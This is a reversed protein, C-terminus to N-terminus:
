ENDISDKQQSLKRSEEQVLKLLDNTSGVFIAQPQQQSNNSNQSPPNLLNRSDADYDAQIAKRNREAKSKEVSNKMVDSAVKTVTKLLSNYAEIARPELTELAVDRASELVEQSNELYGHLAKKSFEYDEEIKKKENADELQKRKKEDKEFDDLLTVLENQKEIDNM